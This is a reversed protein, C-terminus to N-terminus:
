PRAVRRADDLQELTCSEADRDPRWRRFRAPHRLRYGDVQDFAVECVLVPALPIWDLPLDPTWRGAAGKLRGMPGGELAFGHAWPHTALDTVLPELDRRLQARLAKGMGSAVGVHRLVDDDYLGLLLSAVDGDDFTRAGAVVCDMTREAKVKVMTRRGAEYISQAHKAVVGDVGSGAPAELWRQADRRDRTIPTVTVRAADHPALAALAARREDFTSARVDVGRDALLDFLVLRAPQERALRAVRSAAPHLRSMLAAFDPGHETTVIIEGDVVTDDAVGDHVADALEPFYRGLSRRNRSWLEVADGDRVVLARFGDWKPEYRWEDGDPLTRALRALMPDIPM